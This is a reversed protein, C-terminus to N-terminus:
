EDTNDANEARENNPADNDKPADADSWHTNNEPQPKSEKLSSAAGTQAQKEELRALIQGLDRVKRTEHKDTVPEFVNDEVQDILREAAALDEATSSLVEVGRENREEESTFSYNDPTSKRAEADDGLTEIRRQDDLERVDLMSPLDGLAQLGFYDLFENTTAYMAPRGPSDRHGVIRVWERELLTKIIGSSVVVGRVDEIDGRTIPQRYAILALTELLARSYRQPKEEWLRAVWPAVDARVQLRFGSAVETLEIGRGLLDQRLETLAAQLDAISPQEIEDFLSQMRSLSLPAGAAMMAAELILKLDPQRAVGQRLSNSNM